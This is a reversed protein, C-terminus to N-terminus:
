KLDEINIVKGAGINIYKYEPGFHKEFLNRAKDGSCHCPGAYRVGLKKLASIIKEIKGTGTWELHFGGMAMFIDKELLKGASEIIRVIGPHACGTIVILGKETEVILSQEKILRGLQGTSYVNEFIKLPKETEVIKAGTQQVRSKFSRAFSVPMYVTVDSNRELFGQLGGTHDAHIHSLVVTDISQPNVALKEMNDLLLGGDPGTDFLITKELGTILCSFGWATQVGETYPNNDCIITIVPNTLGEQEVSSKQEKMGQGKKKGCWAPIIVIATLVATFLLIISVTFRNM